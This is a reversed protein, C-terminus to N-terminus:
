NAKKIPKELAKFDRMAFGYKKAFLYWAQKETYADCDDEVLHGKIVASVYYNVKEKAM